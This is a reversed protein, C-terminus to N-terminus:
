SREGRDSGRRGDRHSVALAEDSVDVSASGEGLAALLDRLRMAHDDIFAPDSNIPYQFDGDRHRTIVEVTDGEVRLSTPVETGAADAAVPATISM